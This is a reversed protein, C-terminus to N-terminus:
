KVYAEMTNGTGPTAGGTKCVYWADTGFVDAGSHRCLTRTATVGSADFVPLEGEGCWVGAAVAERIAAALADSVEPPAADSASREAYVVADMLAGGSRERLLFANPMPLPAKDHHFWFDRGTDSAGDGESLTIDRGTEDEFRAGDPKCRYHLVVYEGASVEAAPFEYASRKKDGVSEVRIGSMNGSELVVLEIFEAKPNAYKARIENVRLKPPRSNYGTFPVALSLTNGGGDEVVASIVCKEGIETAASMVFAVAGPADGDQAEVVCPTGSGRVAEASVVSVPASFEMVVTNESVVRAGTFEPLSYEGGWVAAARSELACGGAVFAVCLGGFLVAAFAQGCVCVGRRVRNEM